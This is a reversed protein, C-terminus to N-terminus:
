ESRCKINKMKLKYCCIFNGRTMNKHLEKFSMSSIDLYKINNCCSFVSSFEVLKNTTFSHIDIRELSNCSSFLGSMDTVESTIFNDLKVNSLSKCGMFMNKM